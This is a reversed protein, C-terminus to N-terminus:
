QDGCLAAYAANHGVIQRRTERTDDRSYTIPQFATCAVHDADTVSTPTKMTQCGTVSILSGFLLGALKVHKRFPTKPM